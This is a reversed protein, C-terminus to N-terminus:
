ILCFTGKTIQVFIGGWLWTLEWLEPLLRQMFCFDSQNEICALSILVMGPNTQDNEYLHFSLPVCVFGHPPLFVINKTPALTCCSVYVCPWKSIISEKKKKREENGFAAYQTNHLNITQWLGGPHQSLSHSFSLSKTNSKACGIDNEDFKVFATHGIHYWMSFFSVSILRQVTWDMIMQCTVEEFWVDHFWAQTKTNCQIM